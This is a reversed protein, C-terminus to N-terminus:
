KFFLALKKDLDSRVWNYIDFDNRLTKPLKLIREDYFYLRGNYDQFPVFGMYNEDKIVRLPMTRAMSLTLFTLNDLTDQHSYKRNLMFRLDREVLEEALEHIDQKNTNILNLTSRITHANGYVLTIHAPTPIRRELYNKNSIAELKKKALLPRVWLDNSDPNNILEAIELYPSSFECDRVAQSLANNFLSGTAFYTSSGLAAAGVISFLGKLFFRRDIKTHSRQKLIKKRPKLLERMLLSAGTLSLVGLGFDSLKSKVNEQSKVSGYETVFDGALVVNQDNLSDLLKVLDPKLYNKLNLSSQVWQPSAFLGDILVATPQPKTKLRSLVTETDTIQFLGALGEKPHHWPEISIGGSLQLQPCIQNEPGM